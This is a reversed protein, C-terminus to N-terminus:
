GPAGAGPEPREGALEVRFLEQLQGAVDRQELCGKEPCSLEGADQWRQNYDTLLVTEDGEALQFAEIQRHCTSDEKLRDPAVGGRRDASGGCVAPGLIVIDHQQNKRSVM